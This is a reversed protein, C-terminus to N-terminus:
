HQPESGGFAYEISAQLRRPLLPRALFVNTGTSALRPNGEELGKSQFANLLDLSIRAKANALALDAGFNFYSYSPLRTDVFRVQPPDTLRSGVWHWDAKFQLGPAQRPSYLTVLNGITTPAGDLRVGVLSDIGPGLEAELITGTGLLQLGKVPSVFTEIEAGYSRTEPTPLIEWTTAGTVTDVTVFQDVIHRLRTFFGNLTVAVPGAAYKIGLESSRVERAEFLDVQEQASAAVLQDLPPMKHGRSGLGYVSLQNTVRFNLGVSASWDTLNLTFHRFSFNGFTEADFQTAPDGDLDFLSTNESSQVYSSHEARAGLDARLRNTLRVEGGLVGSALTTQGTGNVYLPLFHVFGNRTINIPSGGPPTVVLDLFRPNNRVDILIDTFFWRNEQSYQALYGGFSFLHRGLRKRLSLQDQVASIPKHVHWEGAPAVLGNPTDFPLPAGTADFHNTFFYQFTTGAPFGLLGHSPPGTVFDQASVANYPVIANWEQDDHMVQVTNQLHWNHPLDFAADATLWTAKTELGHDLPLTVDGAPTPIKLHVGEQSNFSGYDGFGSVYDPHSPNTFPLDLIFQNRDDIHKVSLRLYGDGLLRTVSAKLQGGHIGPFGPNRVGHDYRYFGGVNFRWDSGFPGNMNLDYRALGQTGGTARMTGALVDTGSKNIFNVIAGPTNSGYLPSSGGRVVEMREINGDFRFLNDANMFFTEMTPFVPLGDEMFAVYEVGLIGRISINQNVEGGSSEVRTFGPVYRLMETTSRPAAQEIETATLTTVAVSADLNVRPTQTGTVVLAELQLPDRRLTFNQTAQEGAPVTVSVSEPRFGLMRVRLVNPGPPVRSLLYGGDSHTSTTVAPRVLFVQAGPIPAGEPDM